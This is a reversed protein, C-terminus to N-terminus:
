FEKLSYSPNGETLSRSSCLYITLAHFHVSIKAGYHPILLQALLIGYGQEIRIYVPHLPDIFFYKTLITQGFLLYIVYMVESNTCM